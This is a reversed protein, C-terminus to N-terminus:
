KKLRSNASNQHPPRRARWEVQITVLLKAVGFAKRSFPPSFLPSFIRFCAHPLGSLAHRLNRCRPSHPRAAPHNIDRELPGARLPCNTLICRLPLGRPYKEVDTPTIPQM